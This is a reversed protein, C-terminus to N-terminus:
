ADEVERRSRVRDRPNLDAASAARIQPRDSAVEAPSQSHPAIEAPQDAGFVTRKRDIGGDREVRLRRGIVNPTVEKRGFDYQGVHLADAEVDLLLRHDALAARHAHKGLRARAGDASVIRDPSQNRKAV